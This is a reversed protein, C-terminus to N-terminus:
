NRGQYTPLSIRRGARQRGSAAQEDIWGAYGALNAALIDDVPQGKPTPCPQWSPRDGRVFAQRNVAKMFPNSDIVTVRGLRGALDATFQAGGIALLHLPRGVADQIAALKDIVKHGQAPAKNGTEFEVAVVSVGPNRRLFAGWFNWDAAYAASLHPVPSLGARQMEELCLLQRMRNALNETRPVDLFHSFNPGVVLDIGLRAMWEPTQDRRRFSWYRELDPDNATGRLIVQTQPGLRFAQRLGGPGDAVPLYVDGKLRFASYTDLAVVPWHLVQRRCYRHHILPVYGPLECPRQTFPPLTDFRLGRLERMDRLFRGNHPCVMECDPRGCCHQDFCSDFLLSGTEIGGCRDLLVCNQCSTAPRDQTRLERRRQAQRDM